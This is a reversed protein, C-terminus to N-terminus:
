HRGHISQEKRINASRDMAETEEMEIAKREIWAKDAVAAGVDRARCLASLVWAAVESGRGYSRGGSAPLPHARVPRYDGSDNRHRTDRWNM